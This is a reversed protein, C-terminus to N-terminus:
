STQRLWEGHNFPLFVFIMNVANQTTAATAKRNMANMQDLLSRGFTTMLINKVPINIQATTQARTRNPNWEHSVIKWEFPEESGKGDHPHKTGQDTKGTTTQNQINKVSDGGM